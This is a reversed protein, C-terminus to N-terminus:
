AGVIGLSEYLIRQPPAKNKPTHNTIATIVGNGLMQAVARADSRIPHPPFFNDVDATPDKKGM